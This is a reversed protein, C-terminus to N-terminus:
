KFNYGGKSVVGGAVVSHLYSSLLFSCICVLNFSLFLPPISSPLIILSFSSIFFFLVLSVFVSACIPRPLFPHWVAPIFAQGFSSLFSFRVCSLLFSLSFILLVFFQSFVFSLFSEVNISQSLIWQIAIKLM